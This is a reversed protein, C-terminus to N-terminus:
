QSRCPHMPVGASEKSNLDVNSRGRKVVEIQEEGNQSTEERHTSRKGLVSKAGEKILEVPRIDMRRLRTWTAKTKPSHPGIGFDVRAVHMQEEGETGCGPKSSFSMSRTNTVGCGPGEKNTSEMGNIESAVDAVKKETGQHGNPLDALLTDQESPNSVRDRGDAAEQVHSALATWNEDRHFEGTANERVTNRCPPSRNRGGLAKLWDGYQCSIEGEKKTASFYAACHKLDHGLLGCPHCFLPLREYRFTVWHREGESGALFAGRRIPKSLPVAVKVRMFYSQGETKRNKEVEVVSGLKSGVAEAVKPSMMDFPAGWIQIWLPVSEFKVNEATMGAKWRLLMLVQNDFSWPGGKLVRTMEFESHFKLQFLNTGVEVIQVAEELGWARKLTSIAAKKNFPRCTLFKGILSLACNELGEKRGDDPIEITEKEAATLRMNELISSVEDAM